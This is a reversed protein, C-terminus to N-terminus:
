AVFPGFVAHKLLAHPTARRATSFPRLVTKSVQVRPDLERVASKLRKLWTRVSGSVDECDLMSMLFVVVDYAEYEYLANTWDGWEDEDVDMLCYDARSFRVKSDPDTAASLGFDAVVARWRTAPLTYASGWPARWTRPVGIPRAFVNGTHLDHHKFHVKDQAWALAILVQLVLAQVDPLTLSPLLDELPQGAWDMAIFAYKRTLWADRHRCFIPAPLHPEVHGQLCAAVAAETAFAGSRWLATAGDRDHRAVTWAVPLRVVGPSAGKPSEDGSDASEDGSDQADLVSQVHDYELVLGGKQWAVRPPSKLGAARWSYTAFVDVKSRRMRKVIATANGHTQGGGRFPHSSVFRAIYVSACAGKGIFRRLTLEGLRSQGPRTWRRM